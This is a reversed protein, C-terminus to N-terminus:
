QGKESKIQGALAYLADAVMAAIQPAETESKKDDLATKAWRCFAGYSPAKLQIAELSKRFDGYINILTRRRELVGSKAAAIAADASRPLLAIANLRDRKKKPM